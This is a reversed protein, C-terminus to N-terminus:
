QRVSIADSSDWVLLRIQFLQLGITKEFYEKTLADDMSALGAWPMQLKGHFKDVIAKVPSKRKLLVFQLCKQGNARATLMVTKRLKDHGTSQVAVDGAGLLALSTAAPPDLWGVTEDEGYLRLM